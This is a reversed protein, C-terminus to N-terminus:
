LGACEEFARRFASARDRYNAFRGFSPAAPSLMVVGDPAAWTFAARVAAELDDYDTVAPSGEVSEIVARIRPGNDPLTFIRTPAERIRLAEALPSYDIMRDRGGVLLAVRRGPFADLAAITPLVNTSLSDDVFTVGRTSGITELRSELGKFDRAASLLRDENDAGDVGMARLCAVAILANRRNHEGKLGLETIWEGAPQAASIWDIQPGLLDRKALLLASDGNAITQKAGPRTCISLKDRFYTEVQGQHWDLHDQSLSTVAVVPPSATLDTAQYSSTEIIWFDHHLSDVKPDWPPIGFNGGLLPKLSLGRLLHGAIATTTSKGKTGTVCVVKSRDAGEMWLGLGGVVAVGRDELERVSPAYRSIGPTKIVVDCTALGDMSNEHSGVLSPGGGDPQGDDVVIPTIGMEQLRAVSARGEVGLGWV